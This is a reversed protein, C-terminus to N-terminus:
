LGVQIVEPKWVGGGITVDYAMWMTGALTIGGVRLALRKEYTPTYNLTITQWVQDDTMTAEALREGTEGWNKNGDIIAAYPTLTMGNQQKIIYVKVTLEVGTEGVLPFEIFNERVANDDWTFKHAFALTVPPSAPIGVALSEGNGGPTWWKCYGPQVVDSANRIDYVWCGVKGATVPVLSHRYQSVQTTSKLGAGYLYVRNGQLRVDATLSNRFITGSCDWASGYSATECYDVTGVTNHSSYRVGQTCGVISTVTNNNSDFVGYLCGVISTVTNGNGDSNAIGYNCGVISTVTNGGNNGSGGGFAYTCGVISTVTNTSGTIIAVSCGVISAVTNNSSTVGYLCGVISTVTNNNGYLCSNFGSAIGVTNGSGSITRSYFTTGSGGTNRIECDLMCNVAGTIISMDSTASSRIAVNRATLWIRAGPTQVSDPVASLTITGAAIADLALRQQDYAQPGDAVLTAADHNAVTTWPTDATVNDLVNLTASGVGAGDYVEITGSGTSTLDIVVGASLPSLQFTDATQNRVYYTYNAELPAPLTGSSQIRLAKNAAFGHGVITLTNNIADVSAVTTKTGYTRVSGLTPHVAKADIQLYTATINATGDLLIWHKRGFALASSAGWTGAAMFLRGKAALNTGALSAGTRFRLAYTGDADNKFALMGPNTAHSTIVCAGALGTWASYDAEVTITDGAAVVFTDGDVPAFGGAWSAGTGFNGGGTANSTRTAM